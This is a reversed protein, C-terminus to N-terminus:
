NTKNLEEKTHFSCTCYKNIKNQLNQNVSYNIEKIFMDIHFIKVNEPSEKNWKIYDEKSFSDSFVVIWLEDLFDQYKKKTFKHYIISKNETNTVDIGITKNTNCVFELVSGKSLKVNYKPEPLNHLICYDKLIQKVIKESNKGRKGNYSMKESYIKKYDLVTYGLLGLFRIYGGSKIIAGQLDNRKLEIIENNSPFHNLKKCIIKLEEIIKEDTWYNKPKFIPEYNMLYRFKNIGGFKYIKHVLYTNNEKLEFITPFHNINSIIENLKDIIVKETWV